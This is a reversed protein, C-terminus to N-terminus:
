DGEFRGSNKLKEEEGPTLARWQGPLLGPDLMIQGISCRKLELVKKGRSAVMRKLQHYKGERLTVLAESIEASKVIELKSPRCRLGDSLVIGASFADADEETLKGLVRVSYVKDVHRKPSTIAHSLAGDDTLLLFGQADKDLRGAPFLGRKQLEEPLLSLVTKESPDETSSVYGAPKNMMLYINRRYRIMENDVRIECTETDVKTEPKKCVAGNIQVRGARIMERAASRTAKGSDSILRDLRLTMDYLGAARCGDAAHGKMEIRLYKTRCAGTEHRLFKEFFM